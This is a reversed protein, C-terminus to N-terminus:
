MSVRYAIYKLICSSVEDSGIKRITEDWLFMYRKNKACDHIGFNFTWLKRKYFAPGVSLMPTQQLDM